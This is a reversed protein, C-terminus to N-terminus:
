DNKEELEPVQNMKFVKTYFFFMKYGVFASLILIGIPSMVFSRITGFKEQPAAPEDKSAEDAVLLQDNRIIIKEKKKQISLLEKVDENEKRAKILEQHSGWNKKM